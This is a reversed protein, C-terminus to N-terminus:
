ASTQLVSEAEVTAATLKAKRRIVWVSVGLLVLALVELLSGVQPLATLSQYQVVLGGLVSGAAISVYIASGNLSLVVNVSEPALGILRHQQPTPPIWGVAGWLGIICAAGWLSSSMLPLLFFIVALGILAGAITRAPGWHDAGYGGVLNGVVSGIGFLLLVISIGNGDLHAFHQLFPSIYTYIAFAGMGWVIVNLLIIVIESRGLLALRTRLNAAPPSAVEPFLTLVGLLAIVGLAAVLLFTIRWSVQTGILVGLPVGVVTAITLGATITSLARGRKEPPALMAAVTAASPTYLAAGCAAIIRAIMLVLYNTAVAALLNAIIFVVLTGLLLRRRSVDGLAAALVPSGVAYVLSFVTILWGALVISVHLDHAVNPLIGAIVFGDTGIAFTGLTLVLIRFWVIIRRASKWQELVISCHFQLLSFAIICTHSLEIM